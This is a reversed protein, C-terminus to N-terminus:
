FMYFSSHFYLKWIIIIIIIIIIILLFHDQLRLLWQPILFHLGNSGDGVSIRFYYDWFLESFAQSVHQFLVFCPVVSFLWVPCKPVARMTRSSSIYFYLVNLTATCTVHITVVFNTCFLTSWVCPKNCTITFVTCLATNNNNNNNIFSLSVDEMFIICFSEQYCLHPNLFISLIITYQFMAITAMFVPDMFPSFCSLNRFNSWNKIELGQLVTM